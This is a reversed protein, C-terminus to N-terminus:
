PFNIATGLALRTYQVENTAHLMYLGFDQQNLDRYFGRMVHATAPYAMADWPADDEAFFNVESAEATTACFDSPLHVRFGMRIESVAKGAVVYELTAIMAPIMDEAAVRVGVEEYLERAAGQQLTENLELYGGPFAWKGAFPPLARRMWLLRNGCIALTSVLIKPNEYHTYGCGACHLRLVTEHPFKIPTLTSGCHFCFGM